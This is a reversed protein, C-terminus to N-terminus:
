PQPRQLRVTVLYNAMDGRDLSTTADQNILVFTLETTSEFFGNIEAGQEAVRTNQALQGWNSPSLAGRKHVTIIDNATLDTWGHGTIGNAEYYNESSTVGSPFGLDAFTCQWERIELNNVKTTNTAINGANLAIAASNVAIQATNAAIAAANSGINATNTNIAGLLTNLADSIKTGSVSSDNTLNSALHAAANVIHASLNTQNDVVDSEINNLAQTLDAGSVISNNSIDDSNLVAIANAILIEIAPYLQQWQAAADAAGTARLTLGAQTIVYAIEEQVANMFNAAVVTENGAPTEKFGREGNGIDTAFDTADTRHM